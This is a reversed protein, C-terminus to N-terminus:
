FCILNFHHNVGCSVDPINTPTHDSYPLQHIPQNEYEHNLEEKYSVCVTCSCEKLYLPIQDQQKAEEGDFTMYHCQCILQAM